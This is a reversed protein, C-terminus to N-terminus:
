GGPGFRTLIRLQSGTPRTFVEAGALPEQDKGIDRERIFGRFESEVGGLVWRERALEPQFLASGHRLREDGEEDCRIRERTADPPSWFFSGPPRSFRGSGCVLAGRTFLM